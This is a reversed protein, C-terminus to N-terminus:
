IFVKIQKKTTLARLLAKGLDSGKSVKIQGTRGITATFLYESNIYVNANKGAIRKEFSFVIYAGTEHIDFKIEKGLSEVIPQVEISLGLKNEISKITRGEKGILKPIVENGVKVLVKNESVFEIEASPDFKNIETKIRHIALKQLASKKKEEVPIVVTQEGYTYIEYELSGTEFDRVEVIPRALDAETMGNPVRVTLGLSYVREVNGDKIFIITDIVHPIIGLEVRGVFREIADIPDTAHVTGIMGIGALRMDSFIGFDKTKKIEDFITYDPRVLLLIDATKAFSGGLPAYQTIEPPVQLDRPQEMTKIVKGQKIYFNALSGAFCTKGAGPPGAILVGEARKVLRDKLKGSLRYDDLILKAIPRVLTIELGDSFPPRAIAIRNEKLQIVTAGHEGYEIFSDEEYRATDLIEKAIMELEEGTMPKKRLSIFQIKGPKGRKAYPIANEKLHLSMTDKTLFNEIKIKKAKEWPEFYKVDVGRAEAVLAQLLDATFLVAKNMEAVDIILADIRGSKALFIDEYSQREGVFKITLKTKEGAEKIRKVEELGIYGIERGRAAQAQLEGLVLEPILIESKKLKGSKILKALKGHILISTDPVIRKLRLKKEKPRKIKRKM